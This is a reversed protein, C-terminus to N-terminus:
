TAPAVALHHGDDRVTDSVAVVLEARRSCGARGCACIGDDTGSTTGLGESLTQLEGNVASSIGASM